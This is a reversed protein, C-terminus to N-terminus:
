SKKTVEAKAFCREIFTGLPGVAQRRLIEALDGKNLWIGECSECREAVFGKVTYKALKGSCKPCTAMQAERRAAEVKQHESKMQEILEHEQVAFYSDEHARPDFPEGLRNPENKM